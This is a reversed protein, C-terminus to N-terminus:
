EALPQTASPVPEDPSASVHVLVVPVEHCRLPRRWPAAAPAVVGVILATQLEAEVGDACADAVDVDLVWFEEVVVDGAVVV